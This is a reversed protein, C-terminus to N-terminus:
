SRSRSKRLAARRTRSAVRRYRAPKEAVGHVERILIEAPIGWKAHLMRIATISLPARRHLIESARSRSGLLEALDTQTKGSSEMHAKLAAIPDSPLGLAYHEKEFAEALTSLVDLHAEGAADLNKELLRAIEALAAKHDKESRIPKIKVDSRM